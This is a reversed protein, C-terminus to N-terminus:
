RLKSAGTILIALRWVIRRCVLADNHAEFFFSASGASFTPLVIDVKLANLLAIRRYSQKYLDLTQLSQWNSVAQSTWDTHFAAFNADLENVISM